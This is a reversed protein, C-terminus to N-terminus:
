FGYEVLFRVFEKEREKPVADDKKAAKDDRDLFHGRVKEQFEGKGHCLDEFTGWWEIQSFNKAAENIKQIAENKGLKGAALEQVIGGVSVFVAEHDASCPGPSLAVFYDALFKYLEDHSNFWLFVGIGGGIAPSADGYSFFGIRGKRYKCLKVSQQRIEEAMKEEDFERLTIKKYKM